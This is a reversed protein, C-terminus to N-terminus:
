DAASEHGAAARLQRIDEDLEALSAACLPAPRHAAQKLAALCIGGLVLFLGAFGGIVLLRSEWFVTALLAVTLLIGVGLCFAMALAMLLLRLARLKEEEIENALLELRTRGTSLLTAALSKLTAFLGTPPGAQESGQPKSM